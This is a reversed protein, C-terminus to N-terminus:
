CEKQCQEPNRDPPPQATQQKNVETDLDKAIMADKEEVTDSIQQGVMSLARDAAASLFVLIRELVHESLKEPMREPMDTSMREQNHINKNRKVFMSDDKEHLQLQSM